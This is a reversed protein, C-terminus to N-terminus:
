ERFELAALPSPHEIREGSEVWYTHAGDWYLKTISHGDTKELAAIWALLTDRAVGSEPITAKGAGRAYPQDHSKSDKDRVLQKRGSKMTVKFVVRDAAKEPLADIIGVFRWAGADKKDVGDKRVIVHGAPTLVANRYKQTVQLIAEVIPKAAPILTDDGTLRLNGSLDVKLDM